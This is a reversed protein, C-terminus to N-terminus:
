PLKVKRGRFYVSRVSSREGEFILSSLTTEIDRSLIRPSFLVFDAEKGPAFNGVVNGFGLANAGGLTAYYFMESPATPNLYYMDRMLAIPLMYPGAGVDSGLSIPIGKGKIRTLPFRGSHLFLNAAPCHSIYAGSSKLIDLEDDVLHIAHAVVTRDSLLGMRWYLETYSFSPFLKKVKKVEDRNEAIHLQLLTGTENQFRSALKMGWESSTIPFRVAVSFFLRRDTNNYRKFLEYSSRYSVDPPELLADPADRDMWVKAIYGRVPLSSAVNFVEEVASDHVTVYLAVSTVGCSLAERFFERAVDRAYERSSFRAEEEFVFNSLWDLLTFGAKSRIRFQSLHTHTDVFAPTLLYETLDEDYQINRKYESVSIIKGGDIELVGPFFYRHVDPSLPNFINSLYRAM